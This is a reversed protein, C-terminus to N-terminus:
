CGKNLDTVVGFANVESGSLILFVTHAPFGANIVYCNYFPLKGNDIGITHHVNGSCDNTPFYEVNVTKYNRFTSTLDCM